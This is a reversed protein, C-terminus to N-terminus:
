TSGSTTGCSNSSSSFPSFLKEVKDSGCKPCKIDDQSPSVLEEFNEGCEKCEFEYIPM